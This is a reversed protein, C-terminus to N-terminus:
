LELCKEHQSSVTAVGHEHEHCFPTGHPPESHSDPKLAWQM